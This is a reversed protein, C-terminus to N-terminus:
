GGKKTLQRLTDMLKQVVPATDAAMKAAKIRKWDSGYKEKQIRVYEGILRKVEPSPENKRM